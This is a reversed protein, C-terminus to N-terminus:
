VESSQRNAAARAIAEETLKARVEDPSLHSAAPPTPDTVVPHLPVPAPVATPVHALEARFVPAAVPTFVGPKGTAVDIMHAGPVVSDDVLLEEGAEVIRDNFFSQRTFRYLKM